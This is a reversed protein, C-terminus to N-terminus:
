LYVAGPVLLVNRECKNIFFYDLVFYSNGRYHNSINFVSCM